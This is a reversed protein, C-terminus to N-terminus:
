PMVFCVLSSAIGHFSLLFEVYIFVGFRQTINQFVIGYVPTTSSAAAYDQALRFIRFVFVRILAQGAIFIHKLELCKFTLRV